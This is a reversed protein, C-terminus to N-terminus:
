FRAITFPDDQFFFHIKHNDFFFNSFLSYLICFSRRGHSRPEAVKSCSRSAVPFLLVTLRYCLVPYSTPEKTLILISLVFIMTKRVGAAEKKAVASNAEQHTEGAGSDEAM